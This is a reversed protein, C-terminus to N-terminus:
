NLGAEQRVFPLLLVVPRQRATVIQLGCLMGSSLEIPPGKSSSWRFGSITDPDRVMEIQVETVPGEGTLASMLNENEFNKMLAAKTTPFAGVDRVRGRMFGYEERKVISPSIEADMGTRVEKARLSPIYAVVELNNDSSQLSLVPTDTEIREGSYAKLEIVDGDYPSVVRSMEELEKESEAVRAQLELVQEKLLVDQEAPKKEWGYVDSQLQNIEALINARENQLAALQQRADITQRRTVLGKKYLGDSTRIQEEALKIQEDLRAVQQNGNQQKHHIAEIQLRSQETNVEFADSRAREGEMLGRRALALKEVMAPQEVHAILQGATVHDGPQVTLDALMGAGTTLVNHVGGRRVIAGNGLVTKSVRGFFGWLAFAILLLTFAALVLWSRASTIHMLQDIEEPSSFRDLSSQRFISM